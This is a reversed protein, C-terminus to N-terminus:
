LSLPRYNLWETGYLILLERQHKSHVIGGSHPVLENETYLAWGAGPKTEMTDLPDPDTGDGRLPLVENRPLQSQRYVNFPASGNLTIGVAWPGITPHNRHITTSYEGPEFVRVSFLPLHNGDQGTAEIIESNLSNHVLAARAMNRIYFEDTSELEVLDKLYNHQALEDSIGRCLSAKILHKEM